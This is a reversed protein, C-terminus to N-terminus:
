GPGAYNKGGFVIVSPASNIPHELLHSALILKEDRGVRETKLRGAGIRDLIVTGVPCPVHLCYFGVGHHNDARRRRYSGEGSGWGAKRRQRGAPDLSGPIHFKGDSGSARRSNQQHLYGYGWAVVELGIFDHPTKLSTDGRSSHQLEEPIPVVGAPLPDRAAVVHCPQPDGVPQIIRTIWGGWAM